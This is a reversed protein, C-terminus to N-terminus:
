WGILSASTRVNRVSSGARVALNAVTRGSPRGCMAGTQYSTSSSPDSTKLVPSDVTLPRFM